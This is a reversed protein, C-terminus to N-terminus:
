LSYLKKRQGRIKLTEHFTLKYSLSPILINLLKYIINLMLFNLIDLINKRFSNLCYQM